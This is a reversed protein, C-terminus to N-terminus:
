TETPVTDNVLLHVHNPTVAYNLVSLGFPKQAEFVWRLCCRPFKLRKKLFPKFPAFRNFSKFAQFLSETSLRSRHELM